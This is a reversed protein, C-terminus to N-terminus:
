SHAHLFLCAEVVWPWLFAQYSQDNWLPAQYEVHESEETTAAAATLAKPVVGAQRLWVLVVADGCRM